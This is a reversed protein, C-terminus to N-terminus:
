ALNLMFMGGQACDVLGRVSGRRMLSVSVETGRILILSLSARGKAGIVSTRPHLRVKSKKKGPLEPSGRVQGSEYKRNSNFSFPSIAASNM